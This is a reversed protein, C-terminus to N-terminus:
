AEAPPLGDPLEVRWGPELGIQDFFGQNVELAGRYLAEPPYSPCPMAPCPEMDLVTHVVGDGDFYAISLPILTDKMWFGGDRDDPYRFVMGARPPLETRGMLGRRRLSVKHADYAEVPVSTEGDPAVLMVTTVDYDESAELGTPEGGAAPATEPAAVPEASACAAALLVIVVLWLVRSM